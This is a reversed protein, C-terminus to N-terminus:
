KPNAQYEKVYLNLKQFEPTIRQCCRVLKRLIDHLVINRLFFVMSRGMFIADSYFYFWSKVVEFPRSTSIVALFVTQLSKVSLSFVLSGFCLDVLYKIVIIKINQM